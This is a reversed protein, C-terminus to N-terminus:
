YPPYAPAYGSQANVYDPQRLVAAPPPGAGTRLSRFFADMQPLPPVRNIPANPDTCSIVLVTGTLVLIMWFKAV